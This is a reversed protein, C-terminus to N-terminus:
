PLSRSIPLNVDIVAAVAERLPDNAAQMAIELEAVVFSMRVARVYQRIETTETARVVIGVLRGDRDFVGGGSMGGAASAELLYEAIPDYLIDGEEDGLRELQEIVDRAEEDDLVRGVSAAVRGALVGEGAFGVVLVQEDATVTAHSPTALLVQLPDYFGVPDAAHDTANLVSVFFDHRPLIGFRGDALEDEPVSPLYIITADRVVDSLRTGSADVTRLSVSQRPAVNPDFLTGGSEDDAGAMNDQPLLHVASVLVPWGADTSQTWVTASGKSTRAVRGFVSDVWDFCDHDAHTLLDFVPFLESPDDCDIPLVIAQGCGTLAIASAIVGGFAVRHRRV